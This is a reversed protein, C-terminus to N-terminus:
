HCNHKHIFWHHTSHHRHRCGDDGEEKDDEDELASDEDDADNEAEVAEDILEKVVVDGNM